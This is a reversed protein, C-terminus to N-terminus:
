HRIRCREVDGGAHVELLDVVGDVLSAFLDSLPVVELSRASFLM